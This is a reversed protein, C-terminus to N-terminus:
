GKQTNGDGGELEDGIPHRAPVQQFVDLSVGVYIAKSEHTDRIDHSTLAYGAILQVINRLAETIKVGTTHYM